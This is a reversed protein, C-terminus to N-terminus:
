LRADCFGCYSFRNIFGIYELRNAQCDHTNGISEIIELEKSFYFQPSTWFNNGSCATVIVKVAAQGDEYIMIDAITGTDSIGDMKAWPNIKVRDGIKM